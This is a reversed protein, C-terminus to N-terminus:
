WLFKVTARGVLTSGRDVIGFTLFSPLDSVRLVLDGGFAVDLEDGPTHSMESSAAVLLRTTQFVLAAGTTTSYEPDSPRSIDLRAGPELAMGFRRRSFEFLLPVSADLTGATTEDISGVGAIGGIRTTVSLMNSRAGRRWGSLAFSGGFLVSRDTGDTEAGAAVGATIYGFQAIPFSAISVIPLATGDDRSVFGAGAVFSRLGAADAPLHVLSTGPGRFDLSRPRVRAEPAVVISETRSQEGITLEIAYTGAPLDPPAIWEVDNDPESVVGSLSFVDAEPTMIRVHYPGPTTATFSIRARNYPPLSEPSIERPFVGFDVIAPEVPDLAISLEVTTDEVITFVIQTPAYGFVVITGRYRGVPLSALPLPYRRGSVLLHADDDVIRDGFSIQVSGSPIVLEIERTTEKGIPFFIWEEYTRYRDLEVELFRRGPDVPFQALPTRGIEAGDLRVTAGVPDSTVTLSTLRSSQAVVPSAVLVCLVCVLIVGRASM